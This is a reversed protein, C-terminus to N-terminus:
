NSVAKSAVLIASMKTLFSFVAYSDYSISLNQVKPSPTQLEALLGLHFVTTM